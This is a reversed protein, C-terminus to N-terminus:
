GGQRTDNFVTLYHLATASAISSIAINKPLRIGLEAACKEIDNREFSVQNMGTKFKSLFIRELIAPYTALKKSV